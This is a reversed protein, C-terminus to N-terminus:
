IKSLLYIVLVGLFVALAISFLTKRDSRRRLTLQMEVEGYKPIHVWTNDTSEIVVSLDSMEAVPNHKFKDILIGAAGLPLQDIQGRFAKSLEKDNLGFDNNSVRIRREPKLM